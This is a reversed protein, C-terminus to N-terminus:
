STVLIVISLVAVLWKPIKKYNLLVALAFVACAITVGEYENGVGYYRAGIIADYSMINNQMLFTGFASDITIVVITIFAFFGMQKIDDNKFLARGLIYLILTTLLIGATITIPEKFNFIPAILFSLPMIIGLKIFEKLIIFVK